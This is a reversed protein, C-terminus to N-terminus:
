YKQSRQIRFEFHYVRYTIKAHKLYRGCRKLILTACFIMVSNGDNFDVEDSCESLYTCFHM